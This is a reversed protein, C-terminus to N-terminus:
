KPVPRGMSKYVAEIQKIDALAVKNKPDLALARRLQVLAGPYRQNPPLTDDLMIAHGLSALTAAYATKKAANKPAKKYEGEALRAKAAADQVTSSPKAEALTEKKEAPTEAPKATTQSKPPPTPEPGVEVGAKKAEAADDFNAFTLGNAKYYQGRYNRAGGGAAKVHCYACPKGEKQVFPPFAESKQGGSFLLAAVGLVTAAVGSRKQM